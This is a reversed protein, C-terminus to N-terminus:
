RRQRISAVLRSVKRLYREAVQHVSTRNTQRRPNCFGTRFRMVAGDISGCREIGRAMIRAALMPAGGRQRHVPIAGWNRRGRGGSACGLHSEVFAVAAMVEMPLRPFTRHTARLEAAIRHRGREICQRNEGSMNPYISLLAVIIMEATM